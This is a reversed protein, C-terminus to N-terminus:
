EGIRELILRKAEIDVLQELNTNPLTGSKSKLVCNNKDFIPKEHINKLSLEVIGIRYGILYNKLRALCYNRDKIELSDIIKYSDRKRYTLADKRGLLIFERLSFTIYDRKM